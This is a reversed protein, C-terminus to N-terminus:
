KVFTEIQKEISALYMFEERDTKDADLVLTIPRRQMDSLLSLNYLCDLRYKRECFDKDCNIGKCKTKYLCNSIM